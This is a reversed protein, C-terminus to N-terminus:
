TCCIYGGSPYNRYCERGEEQPPLTLSRYCHQRACNARKQRYEQYRLGETTWDRAIPRDVYEHLAADACADYNTMRAVRSPAQYVRARQPTTVRVNVIGLGDDCTTYIRIM